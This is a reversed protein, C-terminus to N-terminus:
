DQNRKRIREKRKVEEEAELAKVRQPDFLRVLHLSNLWAILAIGVTMWIFLSKWFTLPFLFFLFFPILDLVMIYVTFIGNRMAMIFGHKVTQFVPEDFYALTPIAHSVTAVYFYSVSLILVQLAFKFPIDWQMASWFDAALFAGAALALLYLLTGKKLNHVFSKFFDTLINIEEHLALRMTMDYLATTSAGITVIPISCILWFVNLLILDMFRSLLKTVPTEEHLFNM